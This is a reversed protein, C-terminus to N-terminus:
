NFSVEVLSYVARVKTEIGYPEILPVKATAESTTLEQKLEM